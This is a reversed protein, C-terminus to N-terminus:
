ASHLIHRIVWFVILTFLSAHLELFYIACNQFRRFIQPCVMQSKFNPLPPPTPTPHNPKPLCKTEGFRQHFVKKGQCVVTYSKKEANPWSMYKKDTSLNKEGPIIGQLFKKETSILRCSIKKQDWGYGGGGGEWFDFPRGRLTNVLFFAQVLRFKM